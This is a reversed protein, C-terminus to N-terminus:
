RASAPAGGPAVPRAAPLKAIICEVSRRTREGSDSTAIVAARYDAPSIRQYYLRSTLDLWETYLTANGAPAGPRDILMSGIWLPQCQAQVSDLFENFGTARYNQVSDPACGAGALSAFLCLLTPSRPM